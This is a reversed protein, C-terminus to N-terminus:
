RHAPGLHYVVKNEVLCQIDWADLEQYYAEEENYQRFYKQHSSVFDSDNVIGNITDRQRCHELDEDHPPYMRSAARQACHELDEDHPPYM